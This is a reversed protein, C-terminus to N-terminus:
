IGKGDSQSIEILEPKLQNNILAKQRLYYSKKLLPFGFYHKNYIFINTTNFFTSVNFIFIRM